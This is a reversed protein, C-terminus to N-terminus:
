EVVHISGFDFKSLIGNGHVGGGQSSSTRVHSKLEEFECIFAYNLELAQAIIRGTDKSESRECGIDIEQLAIIDADEQKLIRIVDDLKYGREINWSLLRLPRAMPRASATKPQGITPRFDHVVYTGPEPLSM